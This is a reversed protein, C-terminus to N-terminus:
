TCYRMGYDEHAIRAAADARNFWTLGVFGPLTSTHGPWGLFVGAVLRPTRAQDTALKHERASIAALMDKFAGVSWRDAGADEKWGHTFGVLILGSASESASAARIDNMVRQLQGDHLYHGEDSFQVYGLRYGDGHEIMAKDCAQGLQCPTPDNRQPQLSACASLVLTLPLVLSLLWTPQYTLATNTTTTDDRM